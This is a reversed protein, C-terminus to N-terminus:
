GADPRELPRIVFDNLTITYGQKEGSAVFRVLTECAVAVGLQILNRALPYDCIDEGEGSPVLYRDEWIVEAYDTNLGVHLCPTGSSAAHDQLARRSDANDFSDVIIDSGRLLRAAHRATLEKAQASVELGLEDFLRNRLCEAKFLGVDNEGWVQTGFNRSEVRDRDILMLGGFGQRALGVALNSGIAGVGCVAIRVEALREMLAEGRLITEHVFRDSM